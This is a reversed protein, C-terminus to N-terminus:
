GFIRGKDLMRMTNIILMFKLASHDGGHRDIFHNAIGCTRKKHKIHSKYNALRSKFNATSGVGQLDCAVCHALYVVNQSTCTLSKCINYSRGTATSRFSGGPILFNKCCDCRKATCAFCGEGM